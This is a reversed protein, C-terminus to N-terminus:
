LLAWGKPIVKHLAVHGGQKNFKCKKRCELHYNRRFGGWLGHTDCTAVNPFVSQKMGRIKVLTFTRFIPTSLSVSALVVRIEKDAVIEVEKKFAKSDIIFTTNSASLHSRILEFSSLSVRIKSLIRNEHQKELIM